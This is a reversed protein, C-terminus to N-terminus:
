GLEGIAKMVFAVLFNNEACEPDYFMIDSHPELDLKGKTIAITINRGLIHRKLLSFMLTYTAFSHDEWEELDGYDRLQLKARLTEDSVAPVAADLWAELELQRWLIDEHCTAGGPFDIFISASMTRVEIFFLGEKIGSEQVFRKPVETILYLQRGENRNQCKRYKGTKVVIEKEKSGNKVKKM